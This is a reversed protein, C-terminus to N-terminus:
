LHCERRSVEANALAADPEERHHPLAAFICFWHLKKIILCNNSYGSAQCNTSLFLLDAVSKPTLREALELPAETSRQVCIAESSCLYPWDLPIIRGFDGARGVFLIEQGFKLQATGPVQAPADKERSRGLTQYRLLPEFIM